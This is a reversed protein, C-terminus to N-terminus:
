VRYCQCKDEHWYYLRCLHCFKILGNQFLIFSIGELQGHMRNHETMSCVILNELRNDGKDGNVHHIIEGKVLKRKLYEEMVIQHERKKGIYIYGQKDRRERPKYTKSRGLKGVCEPSCAHRGRFEIKYATGKSRHLIRTCVDCQLKYVTRNRKYTVNKGDKLHRVYSTTEIYTELIM